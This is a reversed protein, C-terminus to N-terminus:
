EAIAVLLSEVALKDVILAVSQSAVSVLLAFYWMWNNDLLFWVIVWGYIGCGGCGFISM